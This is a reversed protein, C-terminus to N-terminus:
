VESSEVAFTSSGGCSLMQAKAKSTLNECPVSDCDLSGCTEEEGCALALLLVVVPVYLIKLAAGKPV